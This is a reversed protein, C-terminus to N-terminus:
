SNPTITIFNCIKKVNKRDKWLVYLIRGQLLCDEFFSTAYLFPLAMDDILFSITFVLLFKIIFFIFGWFEFSANRQATTIDTIYLIRFHNIDTACSFEPRQIIQNTRLFKRSMKAIGLNFTQKQTIYTETTQLSQETYTSTCLSRSIASLNFLFWESRVESVQHFSRM